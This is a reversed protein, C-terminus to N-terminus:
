SQFSITSKALMENGSARILLIEPIQLQPIRTAVARLGSLENWLHHGLHEQSYVYTISRSAVLLYRELEIGHDLIHNFMAIVVPM